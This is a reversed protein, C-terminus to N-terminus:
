RHFSLSCICVHLTSDDHIASFLNEQFPDFMVCSIGHAGSSLNWQRAM